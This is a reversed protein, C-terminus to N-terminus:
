TSRICRREFIRFFLSFFDGEHECAYIIDERDQESIFPMDLQVGPVNLSKKNGLVGGNIIQCTLGADDKSIVDMRM